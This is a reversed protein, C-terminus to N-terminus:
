TRLWGLKLFCYTVFVMSLVVVLVIQWLEFIYPGSVGLLGGITAPIIAVATIVALIKLIRNTEFSSQNVYVDIITGLQETSDNAIESLFGTEDALTEFRSKAEEDIGELPVRGSNLRSVLERFHVLNSSLRGITKQLEYMRALFDKPFRSRPTRAIKSVEVDIDSLLQRFERLTTDLLGEVVRVAFSKATYTTSGFWEIMGPFPDLGHPTISIVKPGQVVVVAGRRAITYFERTQMPYRIEGSQLFLLVTREVRGVHPWLDDVQDIRLHHHSVKLISSLRAIGAESFNSIHIWEERDTRLHQGLEEWSLTRVDALDTPDLGRISVEPEVVVAGEERTESGLRSGATRGTVAFARPLRLLRVLLVASGKGSLAFIPLYTVFSLVIVALDLLHWPSRVYEWRDTALYLKSAYEAVFFLVITVDAYEFIPLFYAPLTVFIPILIIPVLLLSIFAMFADSLIAYVAERAERHPDNNPVFISRPLQSDLIGGSAASPRPPDRAV